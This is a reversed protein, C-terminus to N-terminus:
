NEMEIVILRDGNADRYIIRRVCDLCGDVGLPQGTRIGTFYAHAEVQPYQGSDDADHEFLDCTMGHNDLQKVQEVRLNFRRLDIPGTETTAALERIWRSMPTATNPVPRAPQAAARDATLNVFRSM